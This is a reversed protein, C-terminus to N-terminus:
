QSILIVKKNKNKFKWLSWIAFYFWNIKKKPKLIKEWYCMGLCGLISILMGLAPWFVAHIIHATSIALYRINRVFWLKHIMIMLYSGKHQTVQGPALSSQYCPFTLGVTGHELKYYDVLIITCNLVQAMRFRVRRDLREPADLYFM